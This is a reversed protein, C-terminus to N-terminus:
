QKLEPRDCFDVAMRVLTRIGVALADEQPAFRPNHLPACGDPGAVGVKIYVGPVEQAYYAFDESTLSIRDLKRVKEPGLISSAAAIAREVMAADNVTVPLGPGCAVDCDAGYAEAIGRVMRTARQPIDTELYGPRVSRLTAQFEVKEPIVNVATGAHITTISVVFPDAPDNARSVLTQLALIATAAVPVPDLTLHPTAGHGGRGKIRARLVGNGGMAVKPDVGVTGVPLEPWCHLGAIADVTPNAMVGDKIMRQAGGLARRFEVFPDVGEVVKGGSEEAPQFIFKIDGALEPALDRLVAAAGAVIAMHMDHGCAHMKGPVHSAFPLGTEEEVALADLDARIGFVPRRDLCEAAPAGGRLLASIGHVALGQKIELGLPALYAAVKASTREEEFGVEPEAHIARRLAVVGPLHREVAANIQQNSVGGHQSTANGRAASDENLSQAM